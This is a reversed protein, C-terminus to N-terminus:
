KKVVPCIFVRGLCGVSFTSGQEPVVIKSFLLHDKYILGNHLDERLGADTYLIRQSLTMKERVKPVLVPLLVDMHEKKSPNSMICICGIVLA